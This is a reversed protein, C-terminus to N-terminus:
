RKVNMNVNNEGLNEVLFKINNIWNYSILAAAVNSRATFVIWEMASYFPFLIDIVLM